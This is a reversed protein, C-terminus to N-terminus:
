AWGELVAGAKAGPKATARPTLTVRASVEHRAGGRRTAHVDDGAPMGTSPTLHRRNKDDTLRPYREHYRWRGKVHVRPAFFSPSRLTKGPDEGCALGGM